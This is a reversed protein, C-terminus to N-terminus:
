PESYFNSNEIMGLRKIEKKKTMASKYFEEQKKEYDMRENWDPFDQKLWRHYIINLKPVINDGGSNITLVNKVNKEMVLSAQTTRFRIL